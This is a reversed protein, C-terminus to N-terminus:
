LGHRAGIIAAKVKSVRNTTPKAGTEASATRVPVSLLVIMSLLLAKTLQMTKPEQRCLLTLAM